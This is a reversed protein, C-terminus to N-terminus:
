VCVCVCVCVFMVKQDPDIELGFIHSFIDGSLMKAHKQMCMWEIVLCKVFAWLSLSYKYVLKHVVAKCLALPM